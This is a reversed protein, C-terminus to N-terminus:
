ENGIHVHKSFALRKKDSMLPYSAGVFSSIGSKNFLFYSGAGYFVLFTGIGAGKTTMSISGGVGDIYCKNIKGLMKDIPMKGAFDQCVFGLKSNVVDIAVHLKGIRSGEIHPAAHMLVNSITEEIALCIDQLLTQKVKNDLLFKEVTELTVQKSLDKDIDIILSVNQPGIFINNIPEKWNVTSPNSLRDAIQIEEAYLYGDEQCIHLAEGSTVIKALADGQLGKAMMTSNVVLDKKLASM